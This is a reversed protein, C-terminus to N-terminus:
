FEATKVLIPKAADDNKQKEWITACIRCIYRNKEADLPQLFSSIYHNVGAGRIETFERCPCQTNEPM